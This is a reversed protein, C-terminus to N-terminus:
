SPTCCGIFFNNSQIAHWMPDCSPEPRLSFGNSLSVQEDRRSAARFDDDGSGGRVDFQGLQKGFVNEGPWASIRSGERGIKLM